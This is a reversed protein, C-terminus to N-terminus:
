MCKVDERALDDIIDNLIDNLAEVRDKIRSAKSDITYNNLQPLNDCLQRLEGTKIKMKVIKNIFM